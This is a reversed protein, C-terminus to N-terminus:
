LSNQTSQGKSIENNNHMLSSHAIYICSNPGIVMLKPFASVTLMIQAFDDKEVLVVEQAEVILGTYLSSQGPQLELHCARYM